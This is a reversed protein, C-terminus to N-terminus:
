AGRSGSHAPDARQGSRPSSRAPRLAPLVLALWILGFGAWRAAPLHEHFVTVGLVFQLIPAVYLIIGLTSLPIRVAAAGFCLLPGATVLGSGVLLLSHGAGQAAFTSRGAVTLALLGALAPLVLVLTEAAFGDLGPLQLSKKFAGYATFTLALALAIWPPRGYDVTIVCVAAAGLGVASWQVASLRERWLLVGAAVTTLPTIFYGLSTEVVAGSNVGWIYIGWNLSMAGAALVVHLREKPRAALARLQAWRHRVTIILAALVCSWVIRHLLIEAAGAPKLLPWYLPFLGWQAYAAIALLVGGRHRTM